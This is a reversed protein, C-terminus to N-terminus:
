SNRDPAQLEINTKPQKRDIMNTKNRFKKISMYYCRDVDIPRHSKWQCDYEM